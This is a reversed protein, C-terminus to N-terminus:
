FVVGVTRLYSRYRGDIDRVSADFTATMTATQDVKRQRYTSVVDEYRRKAEDLMRARDAKARAEEANLRVREGICRSDIIAIQTGVDNNAQILSMQLENNQQNYLIKDRPPLKEYLIRGDNTITAVSRNFRDRAENKRRNGTDQAVQRERIYELEFVSLRRVAGNENYVRDAHASESQFARRHIETNNQFEREFPATQADYHTKFGDYISKLDKIRRLEGAELLNYKELRDLSYTQIIEEFSKTATEARWQGRCESPTPIHYDFRRHPCHSLHRETNEYANMIEVLTKGQMQQRYKETFQEATIIGWHLVNNWGHAQMVHELSMRSADERFKALEKPNEYDSFQFSHWIAGAAVLACPIVLLAVPWAVIGLAAVTVATIGAGIGIMGLLRLSFRAVETSTIGGFGEQIMRGQWFDNEIENTPSIVTQRATPTISSVSM